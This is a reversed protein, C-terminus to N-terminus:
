LFSLVVAFTCSNLCTMVSIFYRYLNDDCTLSFGQKFNKFNEQLQDPNHAGSNISNPPSFSTRKEQAETELTKAEGFYYYYYVQNGRDNFDMNRDPVRTM